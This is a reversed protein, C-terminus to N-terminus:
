DTAARWRAGRLLLFLAALGILSMTAPEPIVSFDDAFLNGSNGAIGALGDTFTNNGDTVSATHSLGTVVDELTIDVSYSGTETITWVFKQTSTGTPLDSMTTFSFYDFTGNVVRAVQLAKSSQIYRAYYYNTSNQFNWVAGAMVNINNDLETVYSMKWNETNSSALLPATDIHLLLGPANGAFGVGFDVKNDVIRFTAAPNVTGNTWGSGVSISADTNFSTDDRNFNDIVDAYNVMATALCIVMTCLLHKKM